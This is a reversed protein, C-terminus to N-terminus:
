SSRRAQVACGRSRTTRRSPISTAWPSGCTSGPGHGSASSWSATVPARTAPSARRRAASCGAPRRLCSPSCPRPPLGGAVATAVRRLSAQDATAERQEAELARAEASLRGLAFRVAVVVGAIAFLAPGTIAVRRALNHDVAGDSYLLPLALVVGAALVYLPITRPSRFAAVYVVFLWLFATAPSDEQGTAAILVAAAALAIVSTAHAIAPSWRQPPVLRARVIGLLAAVAALGIPVWLSGTDMGPLALAILTTVAAFLFLGGSLRAAFDEQETLAPVPAPEGGAGRSAAWAAHGAGTAARGDHSAAQAM